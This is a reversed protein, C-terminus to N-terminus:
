LEFYQKAALGEVGRLEDLSGVILAQHINSEMLALQMQGLLQEHCHRRVLTRQNRIKGTVISKALTLVEKVDDIFRAQQFRLQSNNHEKGVLRSVFRGYQTLYIVDVGRSMLSFMAPTTVSVGRGLLVVRDIKILPIDDITTSGKCVLLRQGRKQIRAGQDTVYLTSM